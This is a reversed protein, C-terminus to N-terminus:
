VFHACMTFSVVDDELLSLEFIFAWAWKRVTKEDAGCILAIHKENGYNNMLLLAWLFRRRMEFPDRWNLGRRLLLIWAKAAVTPSAGFVARFKNSQHLSAPPIGNRRMFIKWLMLLFQEAQFSVENQLFAVM